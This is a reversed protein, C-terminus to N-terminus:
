GGDEVEKEMKKTRGDKKGDMKMSWRRGGTEDEMKKEVIEDQMRWGGRSMTRTRWGDPPSWLNPPEDELRSVKLVDEEDEL